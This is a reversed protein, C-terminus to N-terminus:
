DGSTEIIRPAFPYYRGRPEGEEAEEADTIEADRSPEVAQVRGVASDRRKRAVSPRMQLRGIPANM